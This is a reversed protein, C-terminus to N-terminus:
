RELEPLNARIKNPNHLLDWWTVLVIRWRTLALDNSRDTDNQFAERTWHWKLGRPELGLLLPVWAFDIRIVRDGVKVEYQRVPMEFGWQRLRREMLTEFMGETPAADPDRLDIIDRLTGFGRRGHRAEDELRRKLRAFLDSDRRFASEAAAEVVAPDAMVAGLDMLTRAVGTVRLPGLWGADGPTLVKSRHLVIGEPVASRGATTTLEVIGGPDVGDLRWLGAASRHSIASSPGAWLQAAKLKQEWSSPAGQLRYVGPHVPVLTGSGLRYQIAARGVGAELLQDRSLLGFQRAALAGLQAEKHSFSGNHSTNM